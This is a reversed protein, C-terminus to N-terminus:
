FAELHGSRGLRAAGQFEPLFLFFTIMFILGHSYHVFTDAIVCQEM